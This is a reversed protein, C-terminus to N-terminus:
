SRAGSARGYGVLAARPLLHTHHDPRRGQIGSPAACSRSSEEIAPALEGPERIGRAAGPLGGLAENRDLLRLPRLAQVLKDWGAQLIAQPTVLGERALEVYARRAVDQQIPKGFLLCALFWKFLERERGSGLKIGLDRSYIPKKTRAM